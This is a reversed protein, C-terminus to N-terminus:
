PVVTGERLGVLLRDIAMDICAEGRIRVLATRSWTGDAEISRVVTCVDDLNVVAYFRRQEGRKRLTINEAQYTGDNPLPERKVVTWESPGEGEAKRKGADCSCPRDCADISTGFGFGPLIGTDNCDSCRSRTVQGNKIRDPYSPQMRREYEQGADQVVDDRLTCVLPLKFPGFSTACVRSVEGAGEVERYGTVTAVCPLGHRETTGAYSQVCIQRGVLAEVDERTEVHVTMGPFLGAAESARMPTGRLRVSEAGSPSGATFPIEVGDVKMRFTGSTDGSYERRGAQMAVRLEETTFTAPDSYATARLSMGQQPKVLETVRECYASLSEDYRRMIKLEDAVVTEGRPLSVVKCRVPAVVRVEGNHHGRMVVVNFGQGESARASEFSVVTGELSMHDGLRADARLLVGRLRDVDRQDCVTVLMGVRLDPVTHAPPTPIVLM